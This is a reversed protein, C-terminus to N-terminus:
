VVETYEISPPLRNPDDWLLVLHHGYHQPDDKAVADVRQKLIFDPLGFLQCDQLAESLYQRAQDRQHSCPRLFLAMPVGAEIMSDILAFMLDDDPNSAISPVFTQVLGVAQRSRILAPLKDPNCDEDKDIWMVSSAVSAQRSKEYQEWMTRWQHRLDDQYEPLVRELVRVVVRYRRGVPTISRIGAKIKWDEVKYLLLELPLFIEITLRTKQKPLRRHSERVLDLFISPLGSFRCTQDDSLKECRPEDSAAGQQILWVDTYFLLSQLESLDVIPHKPRVQILLYADVSAGQDGAPPTLKVGLYGAMEELWAQLSLCVLQITPEDAYEAVLRQVFALLPQMQTARQVPAKSFQRIILALTKQGNHGRPFRWDPGRPMSSYYLRRLDLDSLRIGQVLRQLEAMQEWPIPQPLLKEITAAFARLQVADREFSFIEEVLQELSDFEALDLDAVSPCALLADVVRTPEAIRFERRVRRLWSTLRSRQPSTDIPMWIRGSKLRMFLVPKWWDDHDRVKGRAVAMARDILGDFSLERFFTAMFENATHIEINAQLAVVAPIGIEVLRPGLASLVDQSNNGASQCCVLIVLRPLHPLEQLQMALDDGSVHKTTGDIDELRLFSRGKYMTGHAVLYLIDPPHESGASPRLADILNSLTAQGPTALETTPITGLATRIRQIEAHVDIAPLGYKTLNNPNAIVVLAHLASKPRSPSPRQDTTGLYRSFLIRQSTLLLADQQPQYLTEWCIAHLEPASPGIM